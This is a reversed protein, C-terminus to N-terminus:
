DLILEEAEFLRTREQEDLVVVLTEPEPKVVVKIELLNDTKFLWFIRPTNKGNYIIHEGDWLGSIGDKELSVRTGPTIKSIQAMANKLDALKPLKQEIVPYLAIAAKLLDPDIKGLDYLFRPLHKKQYDTIEGGMLAQPRLRCLLVVMEPTFDERKMFESGSSLWSSYSPFKTGLREGDSHNMFPYPLWVYDGIYTVAQPNPYDLDPPGAKATERAKTRWAGGNRYANTTYGEERRVKGYVCHGFLTREVCQGKELLPCTSGDPLSCYYRDLRGKTKKDGSYYQIGILEAM